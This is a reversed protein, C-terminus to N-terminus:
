TSPLLMSYTNNTSTISNALQYRKYESYQKSTIISPQQPLDQLVHSSIKHKLYDGQSM